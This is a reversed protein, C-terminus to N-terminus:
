RTGLVRYILDSPFGRRALFRARINWSQRHNDPDTHQDEAEAGEAGEVGELGEEQHSLATSRHRSRAFRKHIVERALELWFEGTHTLADEVIEEHVGRKGLEQRIRIPGHGKAIRNRVYVETFREDSQLDLRQLEQVVANILPPHCGKTELKRALETASLERRSLM